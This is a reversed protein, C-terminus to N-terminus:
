QRHEGFNKVECRREGKKDGITEGGIEHESGSNNNSAADEGKHQLINEPM